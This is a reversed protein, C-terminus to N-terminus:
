HSGFPNCRRLPTIPASRHALQEGEKGAQHQDQDAPGAHRVGCLRRAAALGPVIKGVMGRAVTVFDGAIGVVDERMMVAGAVTM